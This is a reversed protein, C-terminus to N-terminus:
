RPLLPQQADAYSIMVNSYYVNSSVLMAASGAKGAEITMNGPTNTQPTGAFNVKECGTGSSNCVWFSNAGTATVNFSVWYWTSQNVVSTSSCAATGGGGVNEGCFKWATGPVDSGIQLIYLPSGSTGSMGLIDLNITGGFSGAADFKVFMGVSLDSYTSFFTRAWYASDAVSAPTSMKMAVGSTGPYSTGCIPISSPFAQGDAAFAFTAGSGGSATWAGVANGCHQGAALKAGTVTSSQGAFDLLLSPPWGGTVTSNNVLVSQIYVDQSTNARLEINGVDNGNPSFTTGCQTVGDLMLKSSSGSITLVLSHAGVSVGTCSGGASYFGGSASLGIQAEFNNQGQQWLALLTTDSGPWASENVTLTVNYGGSEPILPFTGNTSIQIPTANAPLRLANGTWGAPASVVTPGSGQTVQWLQSCQAAIGTGGAFCTEPLTSVNGFNESFVTGTPLTRHQSGSSGGPGPIRVQASLACAILAITFLRSM